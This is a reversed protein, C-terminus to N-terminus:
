NAPRFLAKGAHVHGGIPSHKTNQIQSKTKIKKTEQLRADGSIDINYCCLKSDLIQTSWRGSYQEM